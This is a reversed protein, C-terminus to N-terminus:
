SVQTKRAREFLDRSVADGRMVDEDCLAVAAEGIPECRSVGVRNMLKLKLHAQQLESFYVSDFVFKQDFIPNCTKKHINSQHRQHKSPTKLSLRAFSDLLSGHRIPLGTANILHVELAHKEKFYNVKFVVNGRKEPVRFKKRSPKDTPSLESPSDRWPRNIRPRPAKADVTSVVSSRMHPTPDPGESILSERSLSKTSDSRTRGRPVSSKASERTPRGRM